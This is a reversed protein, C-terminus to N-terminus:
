AGILAKDRARDYNRDSRAARCHDCLCASFHPEAEEADLAAQIEEAADDLAGAVGTLEAVRSGLARTILLCERLDAREIAEEPTQPELTSCGLRQMDGHMARLNHIIPELGTTIQM